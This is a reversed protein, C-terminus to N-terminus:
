FEYFDPFAQSLRFNRCVDIWASMVQMGGAEELCDAHIEIHKRFCSDYSAPTEGRISACNDAYQQCIALEESGPDDAGTKHPSLRLACDAIRDTVVADRRSDGGAAEGSPLDDIELATAIAKRSDTLPFDVRHAQGDSTWYRVQVENGTVLQHLFGSGNRIGQDSSFRLFATTPSVQYPGVGGADDVSALDELILPEFSDVRILPLREGSMEGDAGAPRGIYLWVPETGSIRYIGLYHGDPNQVYADHRFSEASEDSRIDTKWEASAVSCSLCSLLAISQWTIKGSVRLAGVSANILRGFGSPSGSQCVPKM